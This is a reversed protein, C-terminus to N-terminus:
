SRGTLGVIEAAAREASRGDARMGHTAAFHRARALLADRWNADTLIRVLAPALDTELTVGALAGADVLPSLNNPLGVVLSPIGLIMADVAVTSNVTVIADAVSLLRVLDIAAPAIQVATSGQTAAQYPDAAEAPHPQIVLRVGHAGQAAAVLAPLERRVQVHKSILLAIRDDPPVGLARRVEARDDAGLRALGAALRDLAPSGTVRLHQPPFQGAATLQGAAYDDYLLTLDPRPFGRDEPNHLSAIMEDPEHRYNLWHRYIFGHQLGVSPIGRRRAELVLARGWGGAEAYTVVVGPRCADLAAAAEDMARASWPFQLDAIGRLEADLLPWVDYGEVLARSRLDESGLLATTVADRQRWIATSGALARRSAYHEIPVVPLAARAARLAPSLPNWWRRARFNRAPGVGILRLPAAGQRAALADLVAGIYGEEGDTGDAGARRWFAAHVFALTGGHRGDVSVRGGALRSAWAGWTYFRGKVSAVVAPAVDARPGRAPIVRAGYKAAAQPLLHALVRDGQEVGVADPQEQAFLADLALTTRWLGDVVGQKHLFLEAFWWLSDGRCTFRDRFARGDIDAHRLSKIWANAATAAHEALPGSVIEDLDVRHSDAGRGIRVIRPTLAHVRRSREHTAAGGAACRRRGTVADVTVGVLCDPTHGQCRAPPLRIRNCPACWLDVRVVRHPAGRPAYRAPDSPGFIAAVPTGVAAALHMPGTDGTVLLACREFVAALTVLDAPGSLDVVAVSAPLAQKVYAVAEDGPAGTLVLTADRDAGLRAAVAVFRDSIGSNSRVAAM